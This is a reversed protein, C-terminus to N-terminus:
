FKGRQLDAGSTFQGKTSAALLVHNFAKECFHAKRKMKVRFIVIRQDLSYFCMPYAVGDDAHYGARM